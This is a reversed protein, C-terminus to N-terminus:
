AHEEPYVFAFGCSVFYDVAKDLQELTVGLHEAVECVGDYYLKDIAQQIENATLLKNIAWAKAQGKRKIIEMHYKPANFENTLYMTGGTVYLGLEEALLCVREASSEIKGNDLIIYKDTEMELCAAKKTGSFSDNVLEISNEIAIEELREQKTPVYM